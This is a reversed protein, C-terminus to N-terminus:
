QIEVKKIEPREEAKKNIKVKLIGEQYEAHISNLDVNEPLNFSRKFTHLRFEQRTFKSNEEKENEKEDLSITLLDKELTINFDEKKHGPSAMHIEYANENEVINVPPIPNNMWMPPVARDIFENILNGYFPSHFAPFVNDRLNRNIKVLTM